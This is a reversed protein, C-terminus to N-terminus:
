MGGPMSKWLKKLSSAGFKRNKSFKQNTQKRWTSGPPIQPLVVPERVLNRSGCVSLGWFRAAVLSTNLYLHSLSPAAVLQNCSARNCLATYWYFLHSWHNGWGICGRHNVLLMLKCFRCLSPFLCFVESKFSWRYDYPILQDAIALGRSTCSIKTLWSCCTLIVQGERICPSWSCFCGGSVECNGYHLCTSESRSVSETFGSIDRIGRIWCQSIPYCINSVSFYQGDLFVRPNPTQSGDWTM